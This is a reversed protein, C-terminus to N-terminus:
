LQKVFRYGTIEFGMKKYFAHAVEREPKIGSTLNLSGSGMERAWGEIFRILQKGHGKGQESSRTVLASICTTLGDGEYFYMQRVGIMAAVQGAAELVFTFYDPNAEMAAMRVAMNEMTTPYGLDAMLETMAELDSPRYPRIVTM